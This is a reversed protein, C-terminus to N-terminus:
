YADLIWNLPNICPIFTFLKLYFKKKKMKVMLWTKDANVKKCSLSDTYWRKSRQYYIPAALGYISNCLQTSYLYRDSKTTCSFKSEEDEDQFILRKDKYQYM